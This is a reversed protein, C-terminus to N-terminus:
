LKRLVINDWRVTWGTSTTRADGIGLRASVRQSTWTRPAQMPGFVTGDVTMGIMPPSATLRMEVRLQIWRGTPVAGLSATAGDLFAVGAPGFFLNGQGNTLHFLETGDDGGSEFREIHVAAEFVFDSLAEATQFQIMASPSSDSGGPDITFKASRRASVSLADDLIVSTKPDSAITYRALPDGEDFTECWVPNGTCLESPAAGENSAADGADAGTSPEVGPTGGSSSSRIGALGETDVVLSCGVVALIVSCAGARLADFRRAGLMSGM